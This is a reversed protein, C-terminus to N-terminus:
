GVVKSQIHLLLIIVAIYIFTVIYNCKILHYIAVVLGYPIFLVITLIILFVSIRTVTKVVKDFWTVKSNQSRM